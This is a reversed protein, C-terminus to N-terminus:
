SGNPFGIERQFVKALLEIGEWMQSDTPLAYCFRIYNYGNREDDSPYVAWDSGPNYGIGESRSGAGTVIAVKGELRPRRENM